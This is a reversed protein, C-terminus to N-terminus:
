CQAAIVASLVDYLTCVEYWYVDDWLGDDNIYIYVKDDEKKVGGIPHVIYTSGDGSLTVGVHENGNDDTIKLVEGEKPLHQKISEYIDKRLQKERDDYYRMLDATQIPCGNVMTFEKM